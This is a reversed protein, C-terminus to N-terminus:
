EKKNEILYISLIEETTCAEYAGKWETVFKTIDETKTLVSTKLKDIGGSLYDNKYKESDLEYLTIVEVTGGIYPIYRCTDYIYNRIYRKVSLWYLTRIRRPWPKQSKSSFAIKRMLGEAIHFLQVIFYLAFIITLLINFATPM